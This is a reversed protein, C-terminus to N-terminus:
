VENVGEEIALAMEDWVDTGSVGLNALQEELQAIREEPSVYPKWEENLVFKGNEYFYKGDRYDDPVEVNEVLVFDHDLVFYMLNDEADALRWKEENEYVGYSINEAIAFIYNDKILLKM